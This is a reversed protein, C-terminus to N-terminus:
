IFMAACATCGECWLREWWCSVLSVGWLMSCISVQHVHHCLPPVVCLDANGRAPATTMMPVLGSHSRVWLRLFLVVPILFLDLNAHFYFFIKLWPRKARYYIISPQKPMSFDFYSFLCQKAVDLRSALHFVQRIITVNIKLSISIYGSKAVCM